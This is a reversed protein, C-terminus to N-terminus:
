REAEEEESEEEESADDDAMIMKVNLHAPQKTNKILYILTEEDIPFPEMVDDNTGNYEPPEALVHWGSRRIYKMNTKSITLRTKDESDIDEFVLGGYKQLFRQRM